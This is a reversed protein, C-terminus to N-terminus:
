GHRGGGQQRAVWFLRERGRALDSYFPQVTVAVEPRLLLRNGIRYVAMAVSGEDFHVIASPVQELDDLPNTAIEMGISLTPDGGLTGISMLAQGLIRRNDAIDFGHTHASDPDAYAAWHKVPVSTDGDLVQPAGINLDTALEASALDGEGAAITAAADALGIDILNQVLTAVQQATVDARTTIPITLTCQM